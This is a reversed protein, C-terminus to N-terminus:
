MCLLTLVRFRRLKFLHVNGFQWQWTTLCPSLVYWTIAGDVSANKPPNSCLSWPLEMSSTVTIWDSRGRNFTSIHRPEAVWQTRTLVPECRLMARVAETRLSITALSSEAHEQDTVISPMSLQPIALDEFVWNSYEVDYYTLLNLMSGAYKDEFSIDAASPDFRDQRLVIVEAISPVTIHSYLGPIVISLFSAVLTTTLIVSLALHRNIISLIFIHPGSKTLYDVALSRSPVARGKKLTAFPTAAAVILEISGFMLNIGLAIAAPIYQALVTTSIDLSRIEIFGMDRDSIRQIGELSGVIILALIVLVTTFWVRASAPYWWQPLPSIRAKEAPAASKATQTEDAVPVTVADIAVADTGSFGHSVYNQARLASIAASSSENRFDDALKPNSKLANVVIITSGIEEETSAKRPGLLILIVCWVAMLAFGGSLFGTSVAKVHLRQELYTSNGEFTLNESDLIETMINMHLLQTATGAVLSEVSSKLVEPELLNKLTFNKKEGGHISGLIQFFPPVADSLVFDTGGMGLYMSEYDRYINNVGRSIDGPYLGPLDRGTESVLEIKSNTSNSYYEVHYNNIAYAPKCLMTTLNHIWIGPIESQKNPPFHFDIISIFIRSDLSRNLTAQYKALDSEDQSYVLQGRSEPTSYDMGSNCVYQNMNASYTQTNNMTRVMGGSGMGIPVNLLECDSTSINSLFYPAGLSWWPLYTKTANTINLVECDISVNLGNVYADYASGEPYREIPKFLPVLTDGTTGQPYSLNKGQIAFSLLAPSAGVTSSNYASGNLQNGALVTGQRSILTNQLSFLGTAFVIMLLCTLNGLITITVAWHRNKISLWINGGITHSMYELLITKDASAPGNALEHWPM